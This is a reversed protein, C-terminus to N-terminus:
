AKIVLPPVLLSPFPLLLHDTPNVRSSDLNLRCQSYTAMGDRWGLFGLWVFVISGTREIVCSRVEDCVRIRKSRLSFISILTKSVACSVALDHPGRHLFSPSPAALSHYNRLCSWLHHSGRNRLHQLGVMVRQQHNVYHIFAPYSIASGRLM